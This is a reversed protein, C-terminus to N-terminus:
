KENEAALEAKQFLATREVESMGKLTSVITTGDVIDGMTTPEKGSGGISAFAKEVTKLLSNEGELRKTEEDDLAKLALEPGNTRVIQAIRFEWLNFMPVDKSPNIELFEDAKEQSILEGSENMGRAGKFTGHFMIALGDDIHMPRDEDVDEVHLRPTLDAIPSPVDTYEEAWIKDTDHYTDSLDTNLSETKRYIVKNSIKSVDLV